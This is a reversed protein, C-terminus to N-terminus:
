LPILPYLFLAARSLAKLELVERRLRGERWGECELPSLYVTIGAADRPSLEALWQRLTTLHSTPFTGGLLFNFSFRLRSGPRSLSIGREIAARVERDEVPKGLLRLTSGDLSELGINIHISRYPLGEMEEFLLAPADLLSGVSGFLFLRSGGSMVSEWLRLGDHATEAAWLLLDPPAALGDNQGLFVSNYNVLDPGLYEVMEEVQREFEGTGAVEFEGGTKVSCFPCNYLCGRTVFLPVVDYDVALSDPHAIPITGKLIRRLLIADRELREPGAVGIHLSLRELYPLLQEVRHKPVRSPMYYRGTLEYASDYGRGDYLLWNNGVTRRLASGTGPYNEELLPVMWKVRGQLDFLFRMGELEASGLLGHFALVSIPEYSLRFRKAEVPAGALGAM